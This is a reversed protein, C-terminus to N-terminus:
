TQPPAPQPMWHTPEMSPCCNWFWDDEPLLKGKDGWTPTVWFWGGEPHISGQHWFCNITRGRVGPFLLDIKTGDKPATEIPRWGEQPSLAAVAERFLEYADAGAVDSHRGDMPADDLYANIREVLQM